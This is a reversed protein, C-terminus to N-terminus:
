RPYSGQRVMGFYYVNLGLRFNPMSMSTCVVAYRQHLHCFTMDSDALHHSDGVPVLLMSPSPCHEDLSLIVEM